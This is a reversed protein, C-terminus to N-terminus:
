PLGTVTIDAPELGNPGEQVTFSLVAGYSEDGIVLKLMMDIKDGPKPQNPLVIGGERGGNEGEQLQDFAGLANLNTGAGWYMVGEEQIGSGHYVWVM